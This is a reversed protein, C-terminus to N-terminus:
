KFVYVTILEIEGATALVTGRQTAGNPTAAVLVVSPGVPVRCFLFRGDAGTVDEYQGHQEEVATMAVASDEQTPPIASTKPDSSHAEWGTWIATVTAGEVPSGSAADLVRGSLIATPGVLHAFADWLFGEEQACASRLVEEQTPALMPLWAADGRRVEVEAPEPTHGVEDLARHRYSVRHIGDTLGVLRYRGDLGTVTSHGTGTAFVRARVLPRVYASDMVIGEVVGPEFEAITEGEPTLVRTVQAGRELLRVLVHEPMDTSPNPQEATAPVRIYWERVVWSGNPLRMFGVKGGLHRSPVDADLGAYRFELWQLASSAPELWLAGEIDIRGPRREVPEFALGILGDAAGEGEQVRLCYNDLFADSLLVEADPAHYSSDSEEVELFGEAMLDEVSRSLFTQRQIRDTFNHRENEVMRAEPGLQRAYGMVHYRYFSADETFSTAVLAKRAEDWVRSVDLGGGPRVVCRSEAEVVINALTIAQVPVVMEYIVEAEPAVELAPSTMSAYGIRDARLTYTGAEAPRLLFGGEDNTLTRRVQTGASDALIIVAGALPTGSGEELLRGRVVQAGAATATGCALVLWAAFALVAQTHRM